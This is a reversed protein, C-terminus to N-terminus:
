AVSDRYALLKRTWSTLYHEILIIYFVIHPELKAVLHRVNCMM